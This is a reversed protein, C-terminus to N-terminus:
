LQQYYWDTVIHLGQSRLFSKKHEDHHGSAVIIQVAGAQSSQRKLENLLAQGATSWLEIDAVCFDDVLCALGGPDYVAPHEKLFGIVFGNINDQSESVLSLVNNYGLLEAFYAKQHVDANEAPAWFVPEQQAYTQRKLSSLWVMTNIHHHQAPKVRM